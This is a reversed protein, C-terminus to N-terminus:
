DMYGKERLDSKLLGALYQSRNHLFGDEEIRKEMAKFIDPDVSFTFKKTKRIIPKRPITKQEKEMKSFSDKREQILKNMDM